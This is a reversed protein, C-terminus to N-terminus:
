NCKVKLFHLISCEVCILPAWYDNLSLNMEGSFGLRWGTQRVYVPTVDETHSHSLHLSIDYGLYSGVVLCDHSVASGLAWYHSTFTYELHLVCQSSNFFIFRNPHRHIIIVLNYKMKRLLGSLAM